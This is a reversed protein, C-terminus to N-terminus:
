SGRPHVLLLTVSMGGARLEAIRVATRETEQVGGHFFTPLGMTLQPARDRVRTKFAGAVINVIESVADAVEAPSLAPDDPGMALLAKALLQCTAEDAALGIQVAGAPGILGLYSGHQGPQPHDARGVVEVADIGLAGRATEEFAGELDALWAGLSTREATATTM